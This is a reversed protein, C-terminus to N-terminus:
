PREYRGSKEVLETVWEEFNKAHWEFGGLPKGGAATLIYIGERRAGTADFAFDYEWTALKGDTVEGYSCMAILLYGNSDVIPGETNILNAVGPDFGMIDIGIDNAPDNVIAGSYRELFESYGRDQHLFPYSDFFDAAKNRLEPRPETPHSPGRGIYAGPLRGLREVLDDLKM